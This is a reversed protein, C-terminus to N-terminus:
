YTGLRCEREYQEQALQRNKAHKAQIQADLERRYIERDRRKQQEALVIRDAYNAVNPSLTLEAIRRMEEEQLRRQEAIKNQENQWQEVADLQKRKASSAETEAEMARIREMEELMNWDEEFPKLAEADAKDRRRKDEAEVLWQAELEARRRRTNETRSAADGGIQLSLQTPSEACNSLEKRSRAAKMKDMIMMRELENSYQQDKAVRNQYFASKEKEALHADGPGEYRYGYRDMLGTSEEPGLPATYVTPADFHTAFPPKVLAASSRSHGLRGKKSSVQSRGGSSHVAAFSKFQASDNIGYGHDDGGVRGPTQPEQRQAFSAQHGGIREGGTRPTGYFHRPSASHITSPACYSFDAELAAPSRGFPSAPGGRSATMGGSPAAIDGQPSPLHKVSSAGIGSEENRESQRRQHGSPTQTASLPSQPEADGNDVVIGKVAAELQRQRERLQAISESFRHPSTEGPLPSVRIGSNNSNNNRSQQNQLHRQQFANYRSNEVEEDVAAEEEVVTPSWAAAPYQWPSEDAVTTGRHSFPDGPTTHTAGGFAYAKHFQNKRGASVQRQRQPYDAVEDDELLDRYSSM